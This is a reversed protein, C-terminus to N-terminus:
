RSLYELVQAPGGLPAKAYVVWDHRYLQKQRQCWDSHAGQPDRGIQSDKHAGTLAAMFKGRFHLLPFWIEKM